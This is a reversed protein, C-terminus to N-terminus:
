FDNKNKYYLLHHNGAGKSINTANAGVTSKQYYVYFLLLRFIRGRSKINAAYKILHMQILSM